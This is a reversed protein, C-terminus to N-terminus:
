QADAEDETETEDSEEDDEVFPLGDTGSPVTPANKRSKRGRPTPATEVFDPNKVFLVSMEPYQEMIATAVADTLVEVSDSNVGENVFVKQETPLRVFAVDERILYQRNSNTEKGM